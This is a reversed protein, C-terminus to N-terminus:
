CRRGPHVPWRQEPAATFSRDRQALLRLFTKLNRAIAELNQQLAQEAALDRGFRAPHAIAQKSWAVQVQNPSVGAAALRSLLSKM